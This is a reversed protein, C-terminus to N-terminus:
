PPCRIRVLTLESCHTCSENDDRHVTAYGIKLFHDQLHIMDTNHKWDHQGKENNALESMQTQYHVEVLVQMPLITNEYAKHDRTPWSEFIPFEYGEIDIKLLDIKKHKLTQTMKDLTWFEGVETVKNETGLCVHHFHLRPNKPVQFRSIDGTCDFTHVECSTKELVDLEFSWWNNGGISYVVCSGKLNDRTGCAIKSLDHGCSGGICDLQNCAGMVEFAEFREHTHAHNRTRSVLDKEIQVKNAIWADVATGYAELPMSLSKVFPNQKCLRTSHDEYAKSYSSTFDNQTKIMSAVSVFALIVLVVNKTIFSSGTSIISSDM